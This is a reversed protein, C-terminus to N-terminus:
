LYKEKAGASGGDGNESPPITRATKDMDYAPDIRRNCHACYCDQDEYNAACGEIAWGDRDRAIMSRAIRGFEKRTCDFCLAAGDAAIFYLPYGGPWAYKGARLSAAVERPKTIRSVHGEFQVRVPTKFEGQRYLDGDFTYFQPNM